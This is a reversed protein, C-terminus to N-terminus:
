SKLARAGAYVLVAALVAKVADGLLFPTAFAGLVRETSLSAWGADIGFVQAMGMPWALGPIYLLAAAALSALAMAALGKGSALGAVYAMLVFGVLFGATPGMMYPLGFGFNAFVPLGMAGQGLYAIVTAAGMRAGFTLAIALIALTQLTMPVPFFPVSVQAAVAILISGGLVIALKRGMSDSHILAQSSTM